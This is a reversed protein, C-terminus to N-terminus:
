KHELPKIKHSLTKMLTYLTVIFYIFVTILSGFMITLIISLSVGVIIGQTSIFNLTIPYAFRVSVLLIVISFILVTKKRKYYQENIWKPLRLLWLLISAPIIIYIYGFFAIIMGLYLLSFFLGFVFVGHAVKKINSFKNRTKLIIETRPLKKENNDFIIPAYDLIVDDSLSIIILFLYCGWTIILIYSFNTFLPTVLESTGYKLIALIIAIFGMVFAGRIQERKLQDDDWLKEELDTYEPYGCNKLPAAINNM